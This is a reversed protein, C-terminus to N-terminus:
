GFSDGHVVGFNNNSDGGDAGGGGDNGNQNNDGVQVVGDGSQVLADGDSDLLETLLGISGPGRQHFDLDLDGWWGLWSFVGEVGDEALFTM